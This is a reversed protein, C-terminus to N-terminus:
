FPNKSELLYNFKISYVNMLKIHKNDKKPSSYTSKSIALLLPLENLNEPSPSTNAINTIYINTTPSRLKSM